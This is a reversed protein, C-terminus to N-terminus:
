LSEILDVARNLAIPLHDPASLDIAMDRTFWHYFKRYEGVAESAEWAQVRTYADDLQDPTIQIALRDYEARGFMVVPKGHLIAEHGVGSNLTYVADCHEILDHVSADVWEVSPGQAIAKFPESTHPAAPHAKFLIKTGTENAWSSLAGIIDEEEYDSFFRVVEDDPIQCPFFVYNEEPLIGDAILAERSRREPQDFKSENDTTIRHLYDDFVPSETPAHQYDSYPYM